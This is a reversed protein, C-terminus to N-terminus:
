VDGRAPETRPEREAFAEIATQRDPDAARGIAWDIKAWGDAPSLGPFLMTRVHDLEASRHPSADM